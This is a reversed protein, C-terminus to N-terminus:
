SLRQTDPPTTSFAALFSCAPHPRPYGVLAIMIWTRCCFFLEGAKGVYVEGGRIVHCQKPGLSGFDDPLAKGSHCFGRLPLKPEAWAAAHGDVFRRNGRLLAERTGWRVICPWHLIIQKAPL